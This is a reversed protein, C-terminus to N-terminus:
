KKTLKAMELAAQASAVSAQQKVKLMYIMSITAVPPIVSALQVLNNNSQIMKAGAFASAAVIATNRAESTLPCKVGATCVHYLAAVSGAQFVPTNAVDYIKSLYPSIKSPKKPESTENLQSCKAIGATVLLLSLAISRKM